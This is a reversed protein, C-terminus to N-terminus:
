LWEAVLDRILRRAKVTEREMQSSHPKIQGAALMAVVEAHARLGDVLHLLRARERDAEEKTVCLDCM